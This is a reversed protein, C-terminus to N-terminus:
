PKPPLCGNPCGGLSGACTQLACRAYFQDYSFTFECTVDLPNATSDGSRSENAIRPVTKEYL